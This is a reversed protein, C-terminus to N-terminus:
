SRKSPIPRPLQRTSGFRFKANRLHPCGPDQAGKRISPDATQASQPDDGSATLLMNRDLSLYRLSWVMTAALAGRVYPARFISITATSSSDAQRLM